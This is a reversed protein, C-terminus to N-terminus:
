SEAVTDGDFHQRLTALARRLARRTSAQSTMREAALAECSTGAFYSQEILHREEPAMRALCRGLWRLEDRGAADAAVDEGSPIDQLEPMDELSALPRRRKEDLARNRAITALWTIPSALAPSYSAAQTWVRVFTEQLIEDALDRRGLIRVIIGYLKGSTARYVREFAARDGGGVRALDASLSARALGASVAAPGPVARRDVPSPRAPPVLRIAANRSHSAAAPSM